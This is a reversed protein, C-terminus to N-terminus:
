FLCKFLSRRPFAGITKSQWDHKVLDFLATLDSEETSPPGGVVFCAAFPGNKDNVGQVKHLAEGLRGEPCGLILSFFPLFTSLSAVQAVIQCALWRGDCIGPCWFVDLNLM